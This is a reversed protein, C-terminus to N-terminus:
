QAGALIRRETEALVAVSESAQAEYYHLFRKTEVSDYGSLNHAWRHGITQFLLRARITVPLDHDGLAVRYRLSDGGGVFDPDADAAGHVAVADGARSKDFGDPLLRNDKAYRVASLLSTTVEGAHDLIIPEYIQVQEASSIEQYHREYAGGIADNDNGAISGDPLPRGSEFVSAAVADHVELHIWARRSPYATPLKHGALNWVKVTVLLQPGVREASAIEIRATSQELHELTEAVSRQLDHSSAAVGLEDRYRDLIRLMFANGGRFAHQSMGERPEGLVASISATTQPMHCDQCSQVGAYRSHRWELYPVQEPFQGIQGGAGDRAPTFLTHCTACLESAQIHASEEPAYGTASQMVRVRGADIEFPGFVRAGSTDIRYGGSLSSEEGLDDPLIQHCLTCSVGDWAIRTELPDAATGGLHALIEGTRGAARAMTRAMPMHCVSCTDEIEGRLHPRDALERRVAAQWYPDRASNAMMTASWARGISLAHGEVDVVDGHCAICSEATTFSPHDADSGQADAVPASGGTATLAILLALRSTGEGAM